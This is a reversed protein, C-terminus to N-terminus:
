KAVCRLTFTLAKHDSLDDGTASQPMSVAMDLIDVVFPHHESPKEVFVYDIRLPDNLTGQNGLGMRIAMDELGLEDQLITKLMDRGGYNDKDDGTYPSPVPSGAEDTLGDINFDGAVVVISKPHRKERIFRALDQLQTERVTTREGPQPEKIDTGANHIAKKLQDAYEGATDIAESIDGGYHLHSHFFDIIGFPTQTRTLLVGKRSYFELDRDGRGRNQFASFDAFLLGTKGTMLLALLGPDEHYHHAVAVPFYTWPVYEEDSLPKSVPLKVTEKGTLHLYEMEHWVECLLAVDFRGDDLFKRINLARHGLPVLGKSGPYFYKKNLKKDVDETIKARLAAAFGPLLAEGAAAGGESQEKHIIEILNSRVNEYFGTGGFTVFLDRPIRVFHTLHTNFVMTRLEEAPSNWRRWVERFGPHEGEGFRHRAITAALSYPPDTDGIRDCIARLGLQEDTM